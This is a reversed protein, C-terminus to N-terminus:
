GSERRFLLGEVANVRPDNRETFVLRFQNRGQLM